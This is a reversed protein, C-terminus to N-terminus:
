VEHQLVAGFHHERGALDLDAVCGACDRGLRGQGGRRGQDARVLDRELLARQVGGGQSRRVRSGSLGVGPLHGLVEDVGAVLGAAGRGLEEHGDVVQKGAVVRGVGGRRLLNQTRFCRREGVDRGRCLLHGIEELLRTERVPIAEQYSGAMVIHAVLPYGRCSGHFSSLRSLRRLAVDLNGETVQSTKVVETLTDSPSHLMEQVQRDWNMFVIGSPLAPSFDPPPAM